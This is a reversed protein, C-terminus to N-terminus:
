RGRGGPIKAKDAEQRGSVWKAHEHSVLAETREALLVRADAANSYDGARALFLYKEHKLAECTSRYGIWNSHYQNLTQIGELVVVLGGLIGAALPPAGSLAVIPISAAALISGAKFWKHLLQNIRSKKDYWGIQEDLRNNVPDQEPLSM